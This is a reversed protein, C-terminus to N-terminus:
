GWLGSLTAQINEPLSHFWELMKRDSESLQDSSIIAAQQEDDCLSSYKPDDKILDDYTCNLADAIKRLTDVPITKIIGKEYRNITGINVGVLEALKSTSMGARKRLVVIKDKVLM